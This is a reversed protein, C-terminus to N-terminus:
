CEHTTKHILLIFHNCTFLVDMGVQSCFMKHHIPPFVKRRLMDQKELEKRIRKEHAEVERAIRAEESQLVCIYVVKFALVYAM